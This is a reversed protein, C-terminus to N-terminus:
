ASRNRATAMIRSLEDITEAKKLQEIVEDPYWLEKAAKIAHFRATKIEDTDWTTYHPSKM